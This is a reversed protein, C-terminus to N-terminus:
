PNESTGYCTGFINYINVDQTLVDYQDLLALCTDSVNDLDFGTFDCKNAIFEDRLSQSYLSHWYGM